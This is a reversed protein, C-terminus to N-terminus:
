CDDGNGLFVWVCKPQDYWVRYEGLTRGVWLILDQFSILECECRDGFPGRGGRPRKMSSTYGTIFDFDDDLALTWRNSDMSKWGDMWEHRKKTKPFVIYTMMPRSTALYKKNYPNTRKNTQKNTQKNQENMRRNWVNWRIMMRTTTMQHTTRRGLFGGHQNINRTM